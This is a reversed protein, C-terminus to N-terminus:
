EVRYEMALDRYMAAAQGLHERAQEQKGARRYHTGLGRHCHAVLPRMGLETALAMAERYSREAEDSGARAAIGGLLRLAYAENGRERHARALKLAQEVEARAEDLRGAMLHGLGLPLRCLAQFGMMEPTTTQAIARALLPEADAARGTLLYAESLAAAVRPVFLPLHVDQGIGLAQELRPVARPFHGQRLALVGLGYQAWMVSSPHAVHEAIALAEDALAQGEAFNGLEGHCAALFARSQVAPLNAQGFREYRSPGALATTAQGLSGIAKRYDGLAWDAAGLFLHALAQLVVDGGRM